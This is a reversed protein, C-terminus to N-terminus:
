DQGEVLPILRRQVDGEDKRARMYSSPTAGLEGPLLEASRLLAQNDIFDQEKRQATEVLIKYADNFGLTNLLNIDTKGLKKEHLNEIYRELM